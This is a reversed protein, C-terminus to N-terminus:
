HTLFEFLRWIAECPSIYCAHIYCAIEDEIATIAITM